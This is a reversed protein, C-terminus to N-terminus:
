ISGSSGASESIPLETRALMAWGELDDPNSELRQALRAVMTEIQEKTLQHPAGQAVDKAPALGQQNGLALYLSVSILPVAVVVAIAVVKSRKVPTPAGAPPTEVEELLGRELDSRATEWQDRDISGAALDADLEALQDRFVSLRSAARTVSVGSKARSRVLPTVLFALAVGILLAAYVWFLTM